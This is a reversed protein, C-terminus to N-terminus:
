HPSNPHPAAHQLIKHELTICYSLIDKCKVKDKSCVPIKCIMICINRLLIGGVIIKYKNNRSNIELKNELWNLSMKM